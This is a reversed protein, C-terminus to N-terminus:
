SNKKKKKKPPPPPTRPIMHIMIEEYPVESKLPPPPPNKWNKLHPCEMPPAGWAGVIHFWALVMRIVCNIVKVSNQM